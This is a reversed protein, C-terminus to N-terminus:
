IVGKVIATLNDVVSPNIHVILGGVITGFIFNIM